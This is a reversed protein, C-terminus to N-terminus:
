SAESKEKFKWIFGKVSRCISWHGDSHKTKRHICCSYIHGRNCGTQREAEMISPYSAIYQGDKTYQSVPVSIKPNNTMSKAIRENHNGYNSNYKATCWELNSKIINGSDDLEIWNEWPIENCHNIQPLNNLNPLFANMVLKHVRFTKAIGNKSLCVGLYNQGVTNFHLMKEPVTRLRRGTFCKRKLSKIRGWNSVQYLEEYGKIDKWYEKFPYWIDESKIKM